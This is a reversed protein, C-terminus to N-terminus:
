SSREVLFFSARDLRLSGRGSADGLDFTLESDLVSLRDRRPAITPLVFSLQLPWRRLEDTMVDRSSCSRAFGLCRAGRKVSLYEYVV